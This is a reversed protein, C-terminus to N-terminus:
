KNGRMPFQDCRTERVRDRLRALVRCRAAYVAGISMGLEQAVNQPAAGEIATRRFAQWTAENVENRVHEAARDLLRQEFARDWVAAETEDDDRACVENLRHDIEQDSGVQPHRDRRSVLNLRKTRAVTFLWSRFSGRRPDYRFGEIAGVVSRLVEQTMDAADADQLGHRRGYDYVVPGYIEVFEHWAKNDRLDRIRVLLTLRTVPADTM